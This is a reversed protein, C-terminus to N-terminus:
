GGSAVLAKCREGAPKVTYVGASAPVLATQFQALPESWELGQLEVAGEIATVAHFTKGGTDLTHPECLDLLDLHFYPCRVLRGRPDHQPVRAPTPISAIDMVAISEEIHLKRGASAPRNWDFVRYTIDSSQQVEYVLLGPGLAHVTGAPIFITDGDQLPVHQIMRLIEDSGQGAARVAQEAASQSTGGCFGALIQAGPAASLIHWAETKGNKGPGALEVAQQDNPHVQVSLWDACDLLKILLPFGSPGPQTDGLIERPHQAAAEALTLGALAGDLIHNQGDVIWAEATRQGPRLRQGGWVYDRYQTELQFAPLNAPM